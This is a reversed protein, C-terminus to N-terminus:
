YDFARATNAAVAAAMEDEGIGRVEAM